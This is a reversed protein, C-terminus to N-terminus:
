RYKRTIWKSIVSSMESPVGEIPFHREGQIIHLHSNPVMETIRGPIGLKYLPDKDGYILLMPKKNLSDGLAKSIHRMTKEGTKLSYLLDSIRNRKEPTDFMRYYEKKERFSLERRHIGFAVTSRVLFNTTSNLFRFPASNVLGLMRAIMKYESVPFVTTATLILGAFLHPQDAAVKLASPGGADHGLIIIDSLKLQEIFKELIDSQSVIGFTYDPSATSLGFGPYDLAICRLQGSLPEILNRYMFSSGLPAHSFLLVQGEGEDIYHITNGRIDIKQHKFPYLIQDYENM